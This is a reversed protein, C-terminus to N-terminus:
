RSNSGDVDGQTEGMDQRESNKEELVRRKILELEVNTLWGDNRIARAQYCIDRNLPILCGERRGSRPCENVIDESLHIMRM